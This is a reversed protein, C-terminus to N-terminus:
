DPASFCHHTQPVSATPQSMIQRVARARLINAEATLLDYNCEEAQAIYQNLLPDEFIKWWTKNIETDSEETTWTDSVAVEPPSYNPGLMCGTLFLLPVIKKM